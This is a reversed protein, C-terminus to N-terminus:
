GGGGVGYGKKTDFILGFSALPQQTKPAGFTALKPIKQTVAVVHSTLERNLMRNLAAVTWSPADTFLASLARSAPGGGFVPSILYAVVMAGIAQLTAFRRSPLLRRIEPLLRHEESRILTGAQELEQSLCNIFLRWESQYSLEVVTLPSMKELVDALTGSRFYINRAVHRLVRANITKPSMNVGSCEKNSLSFAQDLKNHLLVLQRAGVLLKEELLVSTVSDRQFLQDTRTAMMEIRRAVNEATCSGNERLTAIFTDSALLQSATSRFALDGDHVKEAHVARGELVTPLFQEFFM